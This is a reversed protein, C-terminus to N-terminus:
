LGSYKKSTLIMYLLQCQSSVAAINLATGLSRFIPVRKYLALIVIASLVFFASSPCAYAWYLISRNTQTIQLVETQNAVCRMLTENFNTCPQFCYGNHLALGPLCELCQNYGTCSKCLPLCQQCHNSADLFYGQLQCPSVTSTLPLCLAQTSLLIYGPQCSSCITSNLCKLCGATCSQCTQMTTNYYYETLPCKTM